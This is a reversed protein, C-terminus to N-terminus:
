ASDAIELVDRFRPLRKFVSTGAATEHNLFHRGFGEFDASKSARKGRRTAGDL